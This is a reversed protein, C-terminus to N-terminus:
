KQEPIYLLRRCNPCEAFDGPNKLKSATDGALEMGCGTCFKSKPDYSKMVPFKKVSKRAKFYEEMERPIASKIEDLKRKLEELASQNQQCLKNFAAEAAKRDAEAKKGQAVVNTFNQFLKEMRAVAESLKKELAELKGKIATVKKLYHEVEVPDTTGELIGNFDDLEERNSDLEAKLANYINLLDRADSNLKGIAERAEAYAKEAREKAKGEPSALLAAQRNYYEQDYQQYELMKDFNM